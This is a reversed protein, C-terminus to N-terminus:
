YIWMERPQWQISKVTGFIAELKLPLTYIGFFYVWCHEPHTTLISVQAEMAFREM